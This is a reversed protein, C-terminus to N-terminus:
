AVKHGHLARLKMIPEAVMETLPSPMPCNERAMAEFFILAVMEEQQIGAAAAMTVVSGTGGLSPTGNVDIVHCIGQSDEKLDLRIIDQAGLVGFAKEAIGTLNLAVPHMDPLLEVQTNVHRFAGKDAASRVGADSPFAIVPLVFREQNGVVCVTYERGPLYTEILVPQNDLVRRIMGVRDVLERRDNVVSHKDICISSGGGAPKVFLPYFMDGELKEAKAELHDEPGIVAFSPVKIGASSLLSHTCDKNRLVKMSEPSSHTYPVGHKNLIERVMMAGSGDYFTHPLDLFGEAIVFAMDVGQATIIEELQVPNSLNLPIVDSGTKLLAEYVSAVTISSACEGLVQNQAKEEYTASNFVFLVRGM